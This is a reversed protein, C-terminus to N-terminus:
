AEDGHLTVAYIVFGLVILAIISWLPYVSIFALQAIAALVALVIALMRAWTRGTSLGAGTAILGVGLLLHIWGWTSYDFAIINGADTVAYFGPNFIGALGAVVQLGGAIFLMASAFYIWGVWGTSKVNVM